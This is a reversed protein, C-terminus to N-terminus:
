EEKRGREWEEVGGESDGVGPVGTTVHGGVKSEVKRGEGIGGSGGGEAAGDSSGCTGFKAWARRDKERTERDEGNGRKGSEPSFEAEVM